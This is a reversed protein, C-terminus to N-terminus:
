PVPHLNVLTEQIFPLKDTIIQITRKIESSDIKQPRDAVTHEANLHIYLISFMCGPSEIKLSSDYFVEM